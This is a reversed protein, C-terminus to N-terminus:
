RKREKGRIWGITLNAESALEGTEGCLCGWYEANSPWSGVARLLWRSSLLLCALVSCPPSPLLTPTMMSGSDEEMSRWEKRWSLGSHLDGSKWKLNNQKLLHRGRALSRAGQQPCLLPYCAHAGGPVNVSPAIIASTDLPPATSPRWCWHTRAADRSEAGVETHRCVRGQYNWESPTTRKM